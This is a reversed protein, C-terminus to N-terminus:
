HYTPRGLISQALVTLNALEPTMTQVIVHEPVETEDQTGAFVFPIELDLLADTITATAETELGTDLIAAGIGQAKVISQMQDRLAHPDSGQRGAYELALRMEAVFENQIVLIKPQTVPPPLQM